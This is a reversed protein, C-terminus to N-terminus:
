GWLDRSAPHVRAGEFRLGNLRDEKLLLPGDLDVFRAGQALLLAPAMALSTAVMCGIVRDFGEEEARKSLALAETLGGSKDLKINVAQYKGKLRGLDASTHCAEDALLPIPFDAGKLAEDEEAHLPQEIMAVRNAVLAPMLSDLLELSWGENADILLDREGAAERVAQLRATELGLDQAGLKVKLAPFSAAKRTAEAMQEPTGLSITYLTEVPAALDLALRKTVPHDALKAELDWLALDLVNRASGPKMKGHLATLGIGAEIEGRWEEIEKLVTEVTEGYRRYPVCEGRGVKDGDQLEVYVIDAATKSGRAIAFPSALPWSQHEAFLTRAM